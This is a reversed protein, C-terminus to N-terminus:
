KLLLRFIWIGFAAAVGQWYSAVPAGFAPVAILNWLFMLLWGGGFFWAALIALAFLIGLIVAAVTQSTDLDNFINTKQNRSIVFPKNPKYM